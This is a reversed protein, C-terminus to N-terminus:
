FPPETNGPTPRWQRSIGDRAAADSLPDRPKAPPTLVIEGRQHMDHLFRALTLPIPATM